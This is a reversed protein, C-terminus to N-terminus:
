QNSSSAVPYKIANKLMKAQFAQSLDIELVSALRLLYALVDAMEEGIPVRQETSVEEHVETWQFHEMLEAAEIAVSMALNKPAHFREWRRERAFADVLAQLDQLSKSNSMIKSPSCLPASQGHHSNMTAM